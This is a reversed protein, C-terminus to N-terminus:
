GRGADRAQARWQTIVKDATQWGELGAGIAFAPVLWVFRLLFLAVIFPAAVLWMFVRLPKVAAAKAFIENLDPRM